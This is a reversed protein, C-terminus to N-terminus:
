VLHDSHERLISSYLTADMLLDKGSDRKEPYGLLNQRGTDSKDSPGSDSMKSLRVHGATSNCLLTM